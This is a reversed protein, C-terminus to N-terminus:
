TELMEVAFIHYNKKIFSTQVHSINNKNILTYLFATIFIHM